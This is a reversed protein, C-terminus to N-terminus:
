NGCATYIGFNNVRDIEPFRNGTNLLMVSRPSAVFKKFGVYGGYSNKGNVEGCIVKGKSYPKIQLNQFQASSPDKLEQRVVDKAKSIANEESDSALFSLTEQSYLELQELLSQRIKTETSQVPATTACGTLIFVICTFLISVIKM